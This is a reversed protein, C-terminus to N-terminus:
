FKQRTEDVTATLSDRLGGLTTSGQSRSIEPCHHTISGNSAMYIAVLGAADVGTQARNARQISLEDCCYLAQSISYCAEALHLTLM